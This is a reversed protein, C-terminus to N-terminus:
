AFRMRSSLITMSMENLLYDRWVFSLLVHRFLEQFYQKREKEDHYIWKLIFKFVDEEASVYLDDRSILQEVEHSPLNLFFEENAVSAFNLSM